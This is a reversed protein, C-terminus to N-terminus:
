SLDATYTWILPMTGPSKQRRVRIAGEAALVHLAYVERPWLEPRGLREAIERRTHYGPGLAALIELMRRKPDRPYIVSM